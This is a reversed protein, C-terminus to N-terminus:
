LDPLYMRCTSLASHLHAHGAATTASLGACGTLAARAADSLTWGHLELLADAAQERADRLEPPGADWMAGLFLAVSIASLTETTPPPEYRGPSPTAAILDLVLEPGHVDILRTLHRGTQDDGPHGSAAAIVSRILAPGLDALATPAIATM